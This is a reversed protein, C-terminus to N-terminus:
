YVYIAWSSHGPVSTVRVMTRYTPHIITDYSVLATIDM